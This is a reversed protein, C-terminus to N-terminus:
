LYRSHESPSVSRQVHAPPAKPKALIAPQYISFDNRAKSPVVSIIKKLAIHIFHSSPLPQKMIKRKIDAASHLIHKETNAATCLWLQLPIVSNFHRKFHSLKSHLNYKSINPMRHQMWFAADFTNFKSPKTQYLQSSCM